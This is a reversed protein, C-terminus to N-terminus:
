NDPAVLSSDLENTKLKENNLNKCSVTVTKIKRQSLINTLKKQSSLM